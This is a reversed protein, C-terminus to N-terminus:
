VLGLVFFSLVFIMFNLICVFFANRLALNHYILHSSPSNMFVKLCLSNLTKLCTLDHSTSHDEVLLDIPSLNTLTLLRPSTSSPKMVSTRAPMLLTLKLQEVALLQNVITRHDTLNPSLLSLFSRYDGSWQSPIMIGNKRLRTVEHIGINFNNSRVQKIETFRPFSAFLNSFRRYDDSRPSSIMIGTRMLRKNELALSSYEPNEEYLISAETYYRYSHTKINSNILSQKFNTAFHTLSLYNTVSQHCCDCGRIILISFLIGIVSLCNIEHDFVKPSVLPLTRLSNKLVWIFVPVYRDMQRGNDLPASLHNLIKSLFFLSYNLDSRPKQTHLNPDGKIFKPKRCKLPGSKLLDVLQLGLNVM